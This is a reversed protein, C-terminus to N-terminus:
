QANMATVSNKRQEDSGSSDDEEEEEDLDFVFPNKETVTEDEVFSDWRPHTSAQEMHECFDQGHDVTSEHPM